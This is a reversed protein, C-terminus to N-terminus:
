QASEKAFNEAIGNEVIETIRAVEVKLTEDNIHEPLAQSALNTFADLRVQFALLTKLITQLGSSLAINQEKLNQIEAELPTAKKPAVHLLPKM